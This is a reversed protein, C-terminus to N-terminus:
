KDSQLASSRYDTFFPFMALGRSWRERGERRWEAKAEAPLTLMVDKTTRMGNNVYSFLSGSAYQTFSYRTEGEQIDTNSHMVVASPILATAGPPFEVVLQLEELVLHGGTAPDFSGLATICCIGFSLNKADRHPTCVTRPGLNFAASPLSDAFPFALQKKEHRLAEM